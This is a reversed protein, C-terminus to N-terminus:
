ASGALVELCRKVEWAKAAHCRLLDEVTLAGFAVRCVQTGAFTAARGSVGVAHRLESLVTQVHIAASVDRQLYCLRLVQASCALCALLVCLGVAWAAWASISNRKMCEIEGQLEGARRSGRASTHAVEMLRQRVRYDRAFCAAVEESDFTLTHALLGTPNPLEFSVAPGDEEEARPLRRLGMKMGIAFCSMPEADAGEEESYFLLQYAGVHHGETPDVLVFAGSGLLVETGSSSGPEPGFLEAGGYVMPAAAAGLKGRLDVELQSCSATPGRAVIASSSPDQHKAADAVEQALMAFEDAFKSSQFRVRLQRHFADSTTVVLTRDDDDSVKSARLLCGLVKAKVSGRDVKPKFTLQVSDRDFRLEGTSWTIWDVEQWEEEAESGRVKSPLSVVVDPFAYHQPTEACRPMTSLFRRAAKFADAM